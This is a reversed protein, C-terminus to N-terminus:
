PAIAERMVDAIREARAQLIAAEHPPMTQACAERWLALWRAFMDPTLRAAGAQQALARHAALPTGRYSGRGRLQAAWFATLARLHHPWDQIAHAFVPGLVGDERASAYFNEVLLALDPHRSQVPSPAIFEM